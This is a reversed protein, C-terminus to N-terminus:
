FNRWAFIPDPDDNEIIYEGAVNRVFYTIAIEIKDSRFDGASFVFSIYPFDTVNKTIRIKGFKSM